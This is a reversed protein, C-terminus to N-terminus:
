EIRLLAENDSQECLIKEVRRQWLTAFLHKEEASATGQIIEKMLEMQQPDPAVANPNYFLDVSEGTDTRTFQASSSVPASFHMLSHRTYKGHLGKFGHKETAGTIQSIVSAIVGAVGEHAEEKFSVAIQGREPLTDPYLAKLAKLTMLYAGAVTPCSHGAAKVSDVYGFTVEGNKFTGLLEALPDYLTITEVRDFFEPYQM